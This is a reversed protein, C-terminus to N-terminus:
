QCQYPKEKTNIQEHSVSKYCHTCRYIQTQKYKDMEGRIQSDKKCYQCEQDAVEVEHGRYKNSHKSHSLAHTLTSEKGSYSVTFQAVHQTEKRRPVPTMKKKYNYWYKRVWLEHHRLHIIYQNTDHFFRQRCYKCVHPMLYERARAPRRPMSFNILYVLHLDTFDM